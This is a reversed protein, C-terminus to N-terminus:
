PLFIEDSKQEAMCFEQPNIRFSKQLVKGQNAAKGTRFVDKELVKESKTAKKRGSLM